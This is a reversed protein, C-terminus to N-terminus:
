TADYYNSGDSGVNPESSGWASIKRGTTDQAYPLVYRGVLEKNHPALLAILQQVAAGPLMSAAFGAGSRGLEEWVMGTTSPDLGLGGFEEALGMKHFGLQFAQGLVDCFLDRKFVEDPDAVQDLAIEGPRLVDEGFYQATRVIQRQIDTQEFDVM